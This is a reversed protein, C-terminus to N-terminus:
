PRFWLYQSQIMQNRIMRLEEYTRRHDSPGHAGFARPEAVFLSGGNGELFRM